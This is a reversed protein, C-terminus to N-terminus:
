TLGVLRSTESLGSCRLSTRSAPLHTGAVGNLPQFSLPVSLSEPWRSFNGKYTNELSGHAVSTRRFFAELFRSPNPDFSPNRQLFLEWLPKFLDWGSLFRQTSFDASFFVQFLTDLLHGYLWSKGRKRLSCRRITKPFLNVLLTPLDRNTKIWWFLPLLSSLAACSVTLALAQKLLPQLIYIQKKKRLIFLNWMERRKALNQIFLVLLINHLFSRKGFWVLVGNDPRWEKRSFLDFFIKLVM